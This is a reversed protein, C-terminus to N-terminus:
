QLMASYERIFFQRVFLEAQTGDHTGQSYSEYRLHLHARTIDPELTEIIGPVDFAGSDSALCKLAGRFEFSDTFLALVISVQSEAHPTWEVRNVQRLRLVTGPPPATLAPMAPAATTVSFADDIELTVRTRTLLFPAAPLTNSGGELELEGDNVRGMPYSGLTDIVLIPERPLFVGELESTFRYGVCAGIDPRPGNRGWPGTGAHGDAAARWHDSESYGHNFQVEVFTDVQPDPSEGCASSAFPFLALLGSFLTAISPM